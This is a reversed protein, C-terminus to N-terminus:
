QSTLDGDHGSGSAPDAPGDGDVEGPLAGGDGPDGPLTRVQSAPIAPSTSSIALARSGHECACITSCTGRIHSGSPTMSAPRAGTYTTESSPNLRCGTM